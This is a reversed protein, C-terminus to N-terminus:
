KQERARAFFELGVPNDPLAKPLTPDWPPLGQLAPVRGM